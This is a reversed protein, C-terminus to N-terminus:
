QLPSSRRRLRPYPPLLPSGKTHLYVLAAHVLQPDLLYTSVLPRYAVPPATGLPAPVMGHLVHGAPLYVPEAAWEEHAAQGPPLNVAQLASWRRRLRPYPPLLPSVQTHTYM